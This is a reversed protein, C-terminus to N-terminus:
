WQGAVENSSDPGYGWCTLMVYMTETFGNTEPELRRGTVAGWQRAGKCGACLVKMLKQTYLHRLSVREHKGEPQHKHQYHTCPQWTDITLAQSM